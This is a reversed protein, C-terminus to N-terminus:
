LWTEEVERKITPISWNTVMEGLYYPATSDPYVIYELPMQLVFQGGIIGARELETRIRLLVNLVDYAGVGSDESYTAVVIRIKCDSEEPEREQKDDKGTLFQLLIYPIKQIQDDKNPLRMKYVDAAREKEEEPNQNRVRVQLKIDKTAERVFEELRDLLIIPTM